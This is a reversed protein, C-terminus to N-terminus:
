VRVCVGRNNEARLKTSCLEAYGVHTRRRGRKVPGPVYQVSVFAVSYEQERITAAIGRGEGRGSLSRM